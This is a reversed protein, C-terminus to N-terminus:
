RYAVVIAIQISHMRTRHDSRTLDDRELQQQSYATSGLLSDVAAPMCYNSLRGCVSRPVLFVFRSTLLSDLLHGHRLARILSVHCSLGAWYLFPWSVSTTPQQNASLDLCSQIFQNSRYSSYERVGHSLENSMGGIAARSVWDQGVEDQKM